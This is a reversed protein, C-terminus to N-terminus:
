CILLNLFDAFVLLISTFITVHCQYYFPSRVVAFSIVVILLQGWRLPHSTGITVTRKGRSVVKGPNGPNGLCAKDGQACGGGQICPNKFYLIIQMSAAVFTTSCKKACDILM